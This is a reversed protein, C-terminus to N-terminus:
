VSQAMATAKLMLTNSVHVLHKCHTLHIFQRLLYIINQTHTNALQTDHGRMSICITIFASNSCFSLSKPRNTRITEDNM